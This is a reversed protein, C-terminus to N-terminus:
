YRYEKKNQAAKVEGKIEERKKKVEPSRQGDNEVQALTFSKKYCMRVYSCVSQGYMGFYTKIYYIGVSDLISILFYM